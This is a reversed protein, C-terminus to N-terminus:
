VQHYGGGAGSGTQSCGQGDEWYDESDTGRVCRQGDRCAGLSYIGGGYYCAKSSKVRVPTRGAGAEPATGGAIAVVVAIVAFKLAVATRPRIRSENM